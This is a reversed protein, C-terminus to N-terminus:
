RLPWRLEVRAGVRDPEGTATIPGSRRLLGGVMLRLAIATAAAPGRLADLPSLRALAADLAATDLQAQLPPGDGTPLDNPAPACPTALHAVDGATRTCLSRPGQFDLPPASGVGTGAVAAQFRLAWLYQSADSLLRADLGDVRVAVRDASSSALAAASALTSADAGRLVSGAYFRGALAVLTRGSADLGARLCLIAAEGCASADPARGAFLPANAAVLGRAVLGSPSGELDLVAGRLPDSMRVLLAARGTSAALLPVFVADQGVPRTAGTAAGVQALAAVLSASEVGSATLLRTAGGVKALVAARQSKGGGAALAGRPKISRPTGAARLWALLQKRAVGGDQVPATLGIAGATVLLARPGAPAIGWDAGGALLDVGVTRALWASSQEDSLAPARKGVERLLTRLGQAAEAGDLLLAADVRAPVVAAARTALSACLLAAMM